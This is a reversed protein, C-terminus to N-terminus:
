AWKGPCTIMLTQAFSRQKLLKPKLLRTAVFEATMFFMKFIGRSNIDSTLLVTKLATVPDTQHRSNVM